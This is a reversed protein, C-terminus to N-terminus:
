KDFYGTYKKYGIQLDLDNEGAIGFETSEIRLVKLLRDIEPMLTEIHGISTVWVELLFELYDAETQNDSHFAPTMRSRSLCIMPAYKEKQYKNPVKGVFIMAEETETGRVDNLLSQLSLSQNLVDYVRLIALRTM